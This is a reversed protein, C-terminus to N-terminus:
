SFEMAIKVCLSLSNGYPKRFDYIDKLLAELASSPAPMGSYDGSDWLSQRKAAHAFSPPSLLSNLM